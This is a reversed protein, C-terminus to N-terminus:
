VIARAKEVRLKATSSYEIVRRPAVLEDSAYTHRAIIALPHLRHAIRDPMKQSLGVATQQPHQRCAPPPEPTASLPPGFTRALVELHQLDRELDVMAGYPVQQADEGDAQADRVVAMKGYGASLGRAEILTDTM